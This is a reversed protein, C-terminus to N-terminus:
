KEATLCSSKLTKFSVRLKGPQGRSIQSLTSSDTETVDCRVISDLNSLPSFAKASPQSKLLGAKINQLALKTPLNRIKNLCM